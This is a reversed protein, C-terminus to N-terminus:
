HCEPSGIIEQIKQAIEAERLIFEAGQMEIVKRPMGFVVCSEEAEAITHGGIKRLDTLAQAGDSGMGTLMIGLWQNGLCELLSRFLIDINPIHASLRSRETIEIAYGADSRRIVRINFGGPAVYIRGRQLIDGDKAEKATLQCIDDLRKAFSRTFKEPMHQAIIISGEFTAPLSPLISMLARPGGTSVGIAVIKNQRAIRERRPIKLSQQIKGIKSFTKPITEWSRKLVTKYTKSSAAAVIKERIIDAQLSIDLSISGSPKHFFDFAGLTLAQITEDASEHTLASIMLVPLPNDRMIYKLAEIGDMIPMNIDMTIVDPRFQRVRNIAEMGNAATGVVRLRADEEIIKTLESRMFASDDVIMVKYMM